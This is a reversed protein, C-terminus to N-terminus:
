TTKFIEFYHEDENKKVSEYVKMFDENGSFKRGMTSAFDSTKYLWIQDLRGYIWEPLDRIQHFIIIVLNNNHRSTQLMKMFKARGGKNTLSLYEAAEECVIISNYKTSAQDIFLEHDLLGQYKNDVGRQKYEGVSDYIFVSGEYVDEMSEILEIASTTKGSGKKGIIAIVKGM